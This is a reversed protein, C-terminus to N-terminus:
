DKKKGMGSGRVDGLEVFEGGGGGGGVFNMEEEEEEDMNLDNSLLGSRENRNNTTNSQSSSSSQNTTNRNPDTWNAALDQFRRKATDGLEIDHHTHTHIYTTYMNHLHPTNITQLSANKLFFFHPFMCKFISSCLPYTSEHEKM